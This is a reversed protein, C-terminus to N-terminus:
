EQKNSYTLVFTFILFRFPVDVNFALSDLSCARLLGNFGDCIRIFNSTVYSLYLLGFILIRVEVLSHRWKKM